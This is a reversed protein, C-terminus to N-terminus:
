HNGNGATVEMQRRAGVSPQKSETLDPQALVQGMTVETEIQGLVLGFPVVDTGIMM